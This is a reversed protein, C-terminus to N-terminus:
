KTLVFSLEEFPYLFSFFSNEFRHPFRLALKTFIWRLISRSYSQDLYVEKYSFTADSFRYTEHLSTGKAFYDMSLITFQRVHTPDIAAWSSRFYPVHVVLIGGPKLVRYIENMLAPLDTVHELVQNAHVVDFESDGFPLPDSLNAVVDVGPLPYHDLGISGPLKNRGCGIDLIKGTLRDSQIRPHQFM